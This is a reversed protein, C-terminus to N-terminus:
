EGKGVGAGRFLLTESRQIKPYRSLTENWHCPGNAVTWTNSLPPSLTKSVVSIANSLRRFWVSIVELLFSRVKRVNQVSPFFPLFSYLNSASVSQASPLLFLFTIEPVKNRKKSRYAKETKWHSLKGTVPNYLCIDAEARKGLTRLETLKWQTLWLRLVSVTM